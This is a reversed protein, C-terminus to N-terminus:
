HWDTGFTVNRAWIHQYRIGDRPTAASYQMGHGAYIAVHYARGGSFYFILDGPLARSRAVRRMHPAFRQANANHPLRAVNGERYAYMSYGSCDFGSRPSAGGYVYRGGVYRQAIRVVRQGPTLAHASDLYKHGAATRLAVRIGPRRPHLTLDFRHGGRLDHARSFRPSPLHARLKRVCRNHITLCALPHRARHRADFVWGSMRISGDRNQFHYDIRGVLHHRAHHHHRRTSAQAPTAVTVACLGAILVGLLATVFV